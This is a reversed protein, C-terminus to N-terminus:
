FAICRELAATFKKLSSSLNDIFYYFDYSESTFWQLYHTLWLQFHMLFTLLCLSRFLKLKLCNFSSSISNEFKEYLLFTLYVCFHIDLIASSEACALVEFWDESYNSSLYKFVIIQKFIMLLKERWVRTILLMQYTSVNDHLQKCM